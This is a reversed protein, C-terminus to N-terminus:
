PVTFVQVNNNLRDLVYVKGGPGVAIGSPWRFQGPGSGETGFYSITGDAVNIVAVRRRDPDSMYVKAGDPSVALRGGWEDRGILLRWEGTINGQEEESLQLLRDNLDIAYIRGPNAHDVAVEIPQEFRDRDTGTYSVFQAPDLPKAPDPPVPPLKLVRNHGTDAIYVSGDPALDVGNAGYLDLPITRLLEGTKGNYLQLRSADLAYVVSGDASVALDKVDGLEDPQPQLDKGPPPTAAPAKGMSRVVKGDPSLVVIRHNGRDGVYIYGQADVALGRANSLGGGLVADPELKESANQEPPPPPQTQVAPPADPMEEPTWSRALPTLVTPPVIGSAGNPATWSWEIRAQGGNWAWRIDVDHPGRSLNVPSPASGSGTTDLVTRGDIMVVVPGSSNVTFTYSGDVPANLKGRWRITAAPAGLTNLMSGAERYGVFPDSRRQAVAQGGFPDDSRLLDPNFLSAVEASLGGTPGAYLLRPQIPAPPSGGPSWLAEIRSHADRLTGSLRVDHIGRALVVQVSRSQAGGPSAEDFFVRGDIELRADGTGSVEFTYVGYSPAVLGGKWEARAPYTLGPPPSWAGNMRATGLNPEDRSVPTGGVPTYSAHLTQFAAVQERTLKYSKFQEVGDQLAVPEEKGGPYFLRILPLYEANNQYIIFALGKGNNDTVPLMNAPVLMDEGEVGKAVFRTSGYTFYIDYGGIGLQYAKYDQGLAQAYRAQATPSCYPCLSWFHVFYEHYSDAGVYVLLALLPVTAYRRALARDIPWAAAFTRDLVIAPFLTITPWACVIRQVYPADTGGWNTFVSGAMGVCFWLMLLGFRGDWFKWLAYVIGILSIAALIPSLMSGNHNEIRYFYGQDSRRYLTDFTERAQEYVLRIWPVPDSRINDLMSRTAWAPDYPIGYRSFTPAQNQPSFISTEQARGVFGRWEDKYMYILYPLCAMLFALGLLIFGLAYQRLFRMRWRILCYMGVVAVLPIVLKGAAYFYLSFGWAGGALAWDSWKRYRMAMFLYFFGIAWLAGTPTSETAHRSFQLAFPWVAMIAGALLGVRQGWLLRGIRYVYWVVLMGSIVSLMRDGVMNDGFIRLCYAVLYFYVNPVGWWGYGFLLTQRGENIARADMGREGEDGFIGPHYELNYVRLVLAVALIGGMLLAEWRPSIHPIGRAFFDNEPGPLISAQPDQARSGAVLTLFLVVLAAAWLWGGLPDAVDRWLVFASGGMLLLSVALGPAILWRRSAARRERGEVKGEVEVGAEARVKGDRRDRHAAVEEVEPTWPVFVRGVPAPAPAAAQMQGSSTRSRAPRVPLSSQPAYTEPVWGTRFGNSSPVEGTEVQAAGAGPVPSADAAAPGVPYDTDSGDDGRVPAPYADEPAELDARRRGFPWVPHLMTLIFLLFAAVYLRMALAYDQRQLLAMQGLFALAISILGGFYGRAGWIRALVGTASPDAQEDDDALGAQPAEEPAAPEVKDLVSM